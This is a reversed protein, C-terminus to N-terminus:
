NLKSYVNLITYLVSRFVNYNQTAKFMLFNYKLNRLKNSSLSNKRVLYNGLYENITYIKLDPNSRILNLWYAYDQRRLIHPMKTAGRLDRRVITFSMPLHNKFHMKELNIDAPPMKRFIEERDPGVGIYGSTVIDANMQKASNFNKSLKSRSWTDDSDCFAIYQGTARKLLFNRAYGAGNNINSGYVMLNNYKKSLKDLISRTTDTSADDYVLIERPKYDGTNISEITAIITEASNFCPIIVSVDCINNINMKLIQDM